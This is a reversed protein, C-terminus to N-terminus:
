LIPEEGDRHHGIPSNDRGGGSEHLARYPVQSVIFVGGGVM